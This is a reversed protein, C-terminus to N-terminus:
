GLASAAQDLADLFVPVLDRRTAPICCVNLTNCVKRDLSHVVSAAFRSADAAEGAILWAGGAGHLSVPTGSQRAVAGLQAVARGSGRAVALSIGPQAFLAWGASHERSQVLSMTGAPLDAAALAPRVAHTVIAEATTLADSGIRMVVTNGTRVVGAADAFVNPRGEFVFAVVGLPARRSEVAWGDHTVVHITDDRRLASDRWGCLGAIMEHRMRPTLGLRSTPRGAAAAAAVDCENASLVSAFASDDALRSAFEDFFQSIQDDTVAGLAHFADRADAFAREAIDYQLQPIHLLDGTEAIALLRDGPAFRAALEPDVAVYRSGGVLVIQGAELREM